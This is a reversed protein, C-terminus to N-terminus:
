QLKDIWMDLLVGIDNFFERDTQTEGKEIEELVEFSFSSTSYQKWDDLMGPEPCTNTSLFFEYRNKQGAIDKTSKIWKRRNGSCTICYVGGVVARNKYNDKLEKKSLREM